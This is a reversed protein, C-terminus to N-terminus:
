ALKLQSLYERLEIIKKWDQGFLERYYDEENIRIIREDYSPYNEKNYVKENVLFTFATLQDGLDPERFSACVIQMDTLNILHKNLTGLREPFDNTTGGNLIIFTKCNHRWENYASIMDPRVYDADTMLNNYEQVAHGFQIGQQIPSMNYPVLGYMRWSDNYEM